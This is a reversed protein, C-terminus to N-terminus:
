SPPGIPGRPPQRATGRGLAESAVCVIQTLLRRPPQVTSTNRGFFLAARANPLAPVVADVSAGGPVRYGYGVLTQGTPCTRHYSRQGPITAGTAPVLRAALLAHTADFAKVRLPERGRRLCIIVLKIRQARQVRNTFVLEWRKGVRRSTGRTLVAAQAPLLSVGYGVPLGGRTCQRRVRTQRPFVAGAAQRAANVRAASREFHVSFPANRVCLLSVQLQAQTPLRLVSVVWTRAGVPGHAVLQLVAGGLTANLAYGSNVVVEGANCSRRFRFLEQAGPSSTSPVNVTSTRWTPTAAGGQQEVKGDPAAFAVPAAACVAAM